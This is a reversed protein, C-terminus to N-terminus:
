CAATWLTVFLRVWSLLQVVCCSMVGQDLKFIHQRSLIRAPLKWERCGEQLVCVCM